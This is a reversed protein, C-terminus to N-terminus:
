PGAARCYARAPAGPAARCARRRARRRRPRRPRRRSTGRAWRAGRAAWCGAGSGPCGSATQPRRLHSSSRTRSQAAARGRGQVTSATERCCRQKKGLPPRARRGSENMARAGNRFLCAANGKESSKAAKCAPGKARGRRYSPAAALRPVRGEGQGSERPFCEITLSRLRLCVQIYPQTTSPQPSPCM